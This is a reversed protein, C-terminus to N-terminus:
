WRGKFSLPSAINTREPDQIIGQQLPSSWQRAPGLPQPSGGGSGGVGGLLGSGASFLLRGLTPNDRLWSTIGTTARGLDSGLVNSGANALGPSGTARILSDYASTQAGTMGLGGAGLGLANGAGASSAGYGATGVASEILAPNTAAGLIGGGGQALGPLASTSGVAEVPLLGSAAIDGAAAAGGEAAAGAAAGEGAAAGGFAGNLAAGGALAAMGILTQRFADNYARPQTAHVVQGNPDLVAFQRMDDGFGLGAVQYQSLRDLLEPSYSSDIREEGSGGGATYGSRWLDGFGMRDAFSQDFVGDIAGNISPGQAAYEQAGEGIGETRAATGAQVPSYMDLVNRGDIRGDVVGAGSLGQLYQSIMGARPDLIGSTPM